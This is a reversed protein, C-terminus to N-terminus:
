TDVIEAEDATGTRRQGSPHTAFNRPRSFISKKPVSHKLVDSIQFLNPFIHKFVQVYYYDFTHGTTKSALSVIGFGSQARSGELKKGSCEGRRGLLLGECLAGSRKGYVGERRVHMNM